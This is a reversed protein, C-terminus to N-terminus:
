KEERTPVILLPISSDRLVKEAVSGVLIKEVGRRSHTGLVIFDVNLEKATNLITDAFVGTRVITQINNDNLHNKSNDLYDYAAKELEEPSNTEVANFNIFGMIPSYDLSSYYTPDSVVHLLIAKANMSSALAHGTEAVKQASPNYDLAILIKKM